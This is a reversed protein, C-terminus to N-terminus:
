SAQLADRVARVDDVFEPLDCEVLASALVDLLKVEGVRGCLDIFEDPDVGSLEDSADPGVFDVARTYAEGLRNKLGQAAEWAEDTEAGQARVDLASICLDWFGFVGGYNDVSISEM